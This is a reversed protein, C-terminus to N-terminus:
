SEGSQQGESMLKEVESRYFVRPQNIKVGSYLASRLRGSRLLNYLTRESIKLLALTESLSLMEKDGFETSYM